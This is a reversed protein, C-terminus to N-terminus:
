SGMTYELCDDQYFGDVCICCVVCLLLVEVGLACWRAGIFLLVMCHVGVGLLAWCRGVVGLGGDM